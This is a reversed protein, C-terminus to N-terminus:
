LMINNKNTRFKSTLENGRCFDRAGMRDSFDECFTALYILYGPCLEIGKKQGRYVSPIYLKQYSTYYPFICDNIKFLLRSISVNRVSQYKSYSQEPFMNKSPSWINFYCFLKKM